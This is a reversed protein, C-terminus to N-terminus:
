IFFSELKFNRWNIIFFELTFNGVFVISVRKLLLIIFWNTTIFEPYISKLIEIRADSKFFYIISGFDSKYYVTIFM